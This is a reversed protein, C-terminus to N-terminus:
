PVDPPLPSSSGGIQMETHLWDAYAASIGTASFVLFEPCDYPHHAAFFQEVAAIKDRHTKILLVQESETAVDDSQWRFFSRADPLCTVCAGLRADVLARAFQEAAARDALTTLILLEGDAPKM